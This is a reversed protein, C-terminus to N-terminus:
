PLTIRNKGDSVTVFSCSSKASPTIPSPREARIAAYCCPRAPPHRAVRQAAPGGDRAAWGTPHGFPSTVARLATYAPEFGAGVEFIHNLIGFM